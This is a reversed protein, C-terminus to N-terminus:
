SGTAAAGPVLQAEAEDVARPHRGHPAKVMAMLVDDPVGKYKLEALVSPFTDFLCSSTNIKEIILLSPLKARIMTVVDSNTLPAIDQAFTFPVISVFLTLTLLVSLVSKPM